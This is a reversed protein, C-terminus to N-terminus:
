FMCMHVICSVDRWEMNLAKGTVVAYCTQTNLLSVPKAYPLHSPTRRYFLQECGVLPPGKPNPKLLSFNNRIIFFVCIINILKIGLRVDNTYGFLSSHSPNPM